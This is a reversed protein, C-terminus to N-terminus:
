NQEKQQPNYPITPQHVTGENNIFERFKSNPSNM